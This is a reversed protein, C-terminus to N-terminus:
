PVTDQLLTFPSSQKYNTGVNVTLKRCLTAKRYFELRYYWTIITLKAKGAEAYVRHVCQHMLLQLRNIYYINNMFTM